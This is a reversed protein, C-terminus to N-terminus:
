SRLVVEYKCHRQGKRIYTEALLIKVGLPVVKKSFFRARRSWEESWIKIQVSVLDVQKEPPENNDVVAIFVPDLDSFKEIIKEPLKKYFSTM